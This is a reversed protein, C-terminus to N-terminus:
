WELGIDDKISFDKRKGVPSEKLKEKWDDIAAVIFLMGVKRQSTANNAQKNTKAVSRVAACHVMEKIGGWGTVSVRLRDDAPMAVKFALVTGDM